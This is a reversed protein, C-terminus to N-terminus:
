RSLQWNEYHRDPLSQGPLTAARRCASSAKNHMCILLQRGKEFEFGCNLGVSMIMLAIARFRIFFQSTIASLRQLAPQLQPQTEAMSELPRVPNSVRM